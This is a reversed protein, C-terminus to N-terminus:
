RYGADRARVIAEPRGAVQLKAFVTSTYNAVTKVSLSLERAIASNGLGRAILRLIQDERYTLGPFPPGPRDAGSGAFHELVQRAVAPSFIAEGSAAASLARLMTPEDADKLVYGQAGARLAASVTQQDDSLTLVLVIPRPEHATVLRTAEVGSIGPLHLDMLVLDPASEAALRVGEEGSGAEGVVEFGDATGILLRLGRRFLPHDDVILVRTTM